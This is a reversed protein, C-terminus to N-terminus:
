SRVLLIDIVPLVKTTTLCGAPVSSVLQFRGLSVVLRQSPWNLNVSAPVAVITTSGGVVLVPVTLKRSLMELSLVPSVIVGVSSPSVLVKVISMGSCFFQIVKEPSFSCCTE